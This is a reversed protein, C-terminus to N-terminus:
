SPRTVDIEEPKMDMFNAQIQIILIKAAEKQNLGFQNMTMKCATSMLAPIIDTGGDKYFQDLHQALQKQGPTM